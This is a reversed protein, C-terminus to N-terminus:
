MLSGFRAFFFMCIYQQFPFQARPNQYGLNTHMEAIDVTRQFGIQTNNVYLNLINPLKLIKLPFEIENNNMKNIWEIGNRYVYYCYRQRKSSNLAVLHIGFQNSAYFHIYDYRPTTQGSDSRSCVCLRTFDM